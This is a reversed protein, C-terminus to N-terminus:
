YVGLGWCSFGVRGGQVTTEMFLPVGSISGFIGNGKKKSRRPVVWFSLGAKKPFGVGWSGRYLGLALKMTFQREM